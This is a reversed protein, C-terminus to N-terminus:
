PKFNWASEFLVALRRLSRREPFRGACPEFTVMEPCRNCIRFVQPTVTGPEDHHRHRFFGYRKVAGRGEDPIRHPIRRFVANGDRYRTEVAALEVSDKGDIAPHDGGAFPAIVGQIEQFLNSNKRNKAPGALHRQESDLLPGLEAGFLSLVADNSGTPKDQFATM